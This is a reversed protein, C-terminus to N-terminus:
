QLHCHACRLPKKRRRIEYFNERNNTFHENVDCGSISLPMQHVAPERGCNGYKNDPHKRQQLHGFELNGSSPFSAVNTPLTSKGFRGSEVLDPLKLPGDRRFRSGVSILGAKRNSRISNRVLHGHGKSAKARQIIRQRALPLMTAPRLSEWWLMKITASQSREGPVLLTPARRLRFQPLAAQV